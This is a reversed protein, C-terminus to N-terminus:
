PCIKSKKTRFKSSHTNKVSFTNNKPGTHQKTHQKVLATASQAPATASVKDWNPNKNEWNPNKLLIFSVFLM